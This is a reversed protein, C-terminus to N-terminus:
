AFFLFCEKKYRTVYFLIRSKEANLIAYKKTKINIFIEPSANNLPIFM